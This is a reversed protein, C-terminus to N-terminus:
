TKAIDGKTEVSNAHFIVDVKAKGDSPIVGLAVHKPKFLHTVRIETMTHDSYIQRKNNDGDLLLDNQKMTKIGDDRM